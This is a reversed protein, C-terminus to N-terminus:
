KKRFVLAKGEISQEYNSTDVSKPFESRNELIIYDFDVPQTLTSSQTYLNINKHHVVNYLKLYLLHSKYTAFINKPNSSTITAIDKDIKKYVEFYNSEYFTSMKKDFTIPILIIYFLTILVIISNVAFVNKIKNMWFSLCVALIFTFLFGYMTFVRFEGFVRRVIMFFLFSLISISVVRLAAKIFTDKTKLYTYIFFATLVFFIFHGKSYTGLIYNIAETISVPIIFSFFYWLDNHQMILKNNFVTETGSVSFIPLYLLLWGITVYFCYLVALKLNSYEKRLLFSLGLFATIGIYIFLFVPITYIGLISSIILVIFALKSKPNEMLEISSIISTLTFLSVLIYGRGHVAYISTSFSFGTLILFLIATTYNQKKLLYLFGIGLLVMNLLVNPIRMVYIPNKIFPNFLMVILNYFIHNNPEPYFTTTLLFGNNIFTFYAQIEDGSFPYRNILYIRSFFIALIILVLFVIQFTTLEKLKVLVKQGQEVSENKLITIENSVKSRYKYLIAVFFCQFFLVIPITLHLLDFKQKTFFYPFQDILYTNYFKSRVMELFDPYSYSLFDTYYYLELALLAIFFFLIYKMQLSGLRQDTACLDVLM